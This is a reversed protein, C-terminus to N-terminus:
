EQLLFKKMEQELFEQSKPELLSLRYENILLTQQELWMAWAKQGIKHYIVQGLENPIPPSSLDPMGNNYNTVFFRITM